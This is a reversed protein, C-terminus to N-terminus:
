DQKKRKVWFTRITMASNGLAMVGFLLAVAMLHWEPQSGLDTYYLDLLWYCLWLQWLQAIMLFPILLKMGSDISFITGQGGVTDMPTAHDLAVLTRLRAQQYQYQIYRMLSLYIGFWILVPLAKDHYPSIPWVMAIGLMIVTFYNHLIWWGLMRSGNVVLIHQRLITTCYCYLMVALMIGESVRNRTWLTLLLVALSFFSSQFQFREYERKYNLRESLPRLVMPAHRGMALILMFHPKKPLQNAIYKITEPNHDSKKKEIVLRKICELELANLEKALENYRLAMQELDDM